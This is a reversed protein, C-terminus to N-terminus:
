TLIEFLNIIMLENLLKVVISNPQFKRLLLHYGLQLILATIVFILVVLYKILVLKQKTNKTYTFILTIKNLHIFTHFEKM